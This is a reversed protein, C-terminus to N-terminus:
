KSQHPTERESARESARESERCVFRHNTTGPLVAFRFLCCCTVCRRELLLLGYASTLQQALSSKFGGVGHWLTSLCPLNVGGRQMPGPRRPRIGDDRECVCLCVCKSFSEGERDRRKRERIINNM